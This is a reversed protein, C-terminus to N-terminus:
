AQAQNRPVSVPPPIPKKGHGETAAAMARDKAATWAAWRELDTPQQCYRCMFNEKAGLKGCSPCPKADVSAATKLWDADLGYHTAAARYNPPILHNWKGDQSIKNGENWCWEGYARDCRRNRALDEAWMEEKEEADAERFVQHGFEDLVFLENGTNKDIETVPLRDRVVWLGPHREPDMGLGSETWERILCFAQEQATVIYRLKQRRNNGPGSSVPGEDHQTIDELGLLVPNGGLPVGPIEYPRGSYIRTAKVPAFHVSAITCTVRSIIRRVSNSANVTPASLVTAM